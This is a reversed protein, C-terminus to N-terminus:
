EIPKLAQMDWGREHWLRHCASCLTVLNELRNSGGQARPRIHHVELYRRRRCGPARCQRGDREFVARKTAAPVTQRRRQGPREITADCSAADREGRSLRRAGRNTQVHASRCHGCEYIIIHYPSSIRGRPRSEDSVPKTRAPADSKGDALLSELGQLIIEERTEGSSVIRSKHLKELIAEYRALQLSSFRLRITAPADPTDDQGVGLEEPSPSATPISATSDAETAPDEVPSGDARAESRAAAASPQPTTPVLETQRAGPLLAEMARRKAAAVDRELDRRGLRRARGIWSRENKSTAVQILVRVKTWGIEGKALASRLHPLEQLEAALHDFRYARNTSFGLRETAYHQMTAYGFDAYLRRRSMETFWLLASGEARHLEHIERRLSADVREAPLGRRFVHCALPETEDRVVALQHATSSSYM